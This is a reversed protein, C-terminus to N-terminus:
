AVNKLLMTQQHHTHGPWATLMAIMAEIQFWLIQEVTICKVMKMIHFIPLLLIMMIAKRSLFLKMIQKISNAISTILQIAKTAIIMKLKLLKQGRKIAEQAITHFTIMKIALRLHNQPTWTFDSVAPSSNASVDASYNSYGNLSQKDKGNANRRSNRRSGEVWAALRLKLNSVDRSINPSMQQWKPLRKKDSEFQGDIQINIALIAFGCLLQLALLGIAVPVFFGLILWSKPQLQLCCINGYRGCCSYYWYQNSAPCVQGARVTGNHKEGLLEDLPFCMDVGEEPPRLQHEMSEECLIVSSYLCYVM